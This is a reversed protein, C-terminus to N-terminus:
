SNARFVLVNTRVIGLISCFHTELVERPLNQIWWQITSIYYSFARECPEVDVVISRFVNCQQLYPHECPKVLVFSFPYQPSPWWGQYLLFGLVKITEAM